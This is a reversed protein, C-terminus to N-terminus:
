AEFESLVWLRKGGFRVSRPFRGLNEYNVITWRSLGSLRDADRRDILRLEPPPEKRGHRSDNMVTTSCISHRPLM